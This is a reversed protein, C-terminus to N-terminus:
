QIKLHSFLFDGTNLVSPKKTTEPAALFWTLITTFKPLLKPISPVAIFHRGEM